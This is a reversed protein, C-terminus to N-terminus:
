RRPQLCTRLTIYSPLSHSCAQVDTKQPTYTNMSDFVFRTCFVYVCSRWGLRVRLGTCIASFDRSLSFNCGLGELARCWWSRDVVRRRRRRAGCSSLISALEGCLNFFSWRWSPKIFGILLMLSAWMESHRAPRPVAGLGVVVELDRGERRCRRPVAASGGAESRPGRVSRRMTRGVALGLLDAAAAGAFKGGDERRRQLLRRWTASSAPSCFDRALEGGRRRVRRSVGAGCRARMVARRRSSSGSCRIQTPLSPM